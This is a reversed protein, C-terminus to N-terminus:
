IEQKENDFETYTEIMVGFKEEIEPFSGYYRTRHFM